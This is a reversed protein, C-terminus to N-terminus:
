FSSRRSSTIQTDIMLGYNKILEFRLVASDQEVTWEQVVEGINHLWNKFLSESFIHVPYSGSIGFLSPRQIAVRHKTFKSLPLRNLIIYKSKKSILELLQFPDEVYQIVSSLFAIDFHASLTSRSDVFTLGPFNKLTNPIIKNHELTELVVWDFTLEPVLQSLYFFYEGFSGGVDLVSIRGNDHSFDNSIARVAAAVQYARPDPEFEDLSDLKSIRRRLSQITSSGEYGATKRHAHDWSESSSFGLIPSLLGRIIVKFESIIHTPKKM